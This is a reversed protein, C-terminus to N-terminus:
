PGCDGRSPVMWVSFLRIGWSIVEGWVSPPLNRKPGRVVDTGWGVDPSMAWVLNVIQMPYTRRDSGKEQTHVGTWASDWRRVPSRASIDLGRSGRAERGVQRQMLSIDQWWPLSPPLALTHHHCPLSPAHSPPPTTHHQCPHTSPIRKHTLSICLSKRKGEPRTHAQGAQTDRM